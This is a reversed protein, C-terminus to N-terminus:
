PDNRPHANERRRSRCWALLVGGTSVGAFLAHAGSSTGLGSVPPHSSITTSPMAPATTTTDPPANGNVQRAGAGAASLTLTRGLYRSEARLELTFTFAKDFRQRAAEICDTIDITAPLAARDVTPRAGCTGDHNGARWHLSFTIPSGYLEPTGAIEVTNDAAGPWSVAFTGIAQLGVDGLAFPASSLQPSPGLHVRDAGTEELTAVVRCDNGGFGVLDLGEIRLTGTADLATPAIPVTTNGCRVTGTAQVTAGSALNELAQPVRAVVVGANMSAPSPQGEVEDLALADSWTVFEEFEITQPATTRGHGVAMLRATHATGASLTVDVDERRTSPLGRTAVVAGDVEYSLQADVSGLVELPDADFLVTLTAGITGNGRPGLPTVSFHMRRGDPARWGESCTAARTADGALGRASIGYVAFRLSRGVAAGYPIDVTTQTGDVETTPLSPVTGAGCLEVASVVWRAAPTDCAAAGAGCASWALRWAGAGGAADPVATVTVTDPADPGTPPTSIRFPLSPTSQKGIHATVTFEYTSDARLRDFTTEMQGDVQRRAQDVSAAGDLPKVAVTYSAPVCDLTDVTDYRWFLAVARPQPEAGTIVPVHPRQDTESCDLLEDLEPPAAVAAAGPPTSAPTEEPAPPENVPALAGPPASPDLETSVDSKDVRVPPRGSGDTFLVVAYPTDPNNFVVRPGLALVRTSAFSPFGNEVPYLDPGDGGMDLATVSGTRPDVALLPPPAVAATTEVGDLTYVVGRNLAPAVPETDFPAGDLATPGTIHSQAGDFGLSSWRTGHRVLFWATADRGAVSVIRAANRADPPLSYSTQPHSGSVDITRIETADAVVLQERDDTSTVALGSNASVAGHESAALRTPDEPDTGVSVIHAGQDDTVVLWLRDGAIRVASDSDAVTGDLVVTSLRVVGETDATAVTGRDVRVVAIGAASWGVLFASTASAYAQAADIERGFAVGAGTRRVLYNDLGLFNFSGRARSVLLTGNELSVPQVRDGPVGVHQVVDRFRATLAGAALDVVAPEGRWNELVLSGGVVDARTARNPASTVSAVVVTASLTLAALAGALKQFGTVAISGDTGRGFNARVTSPRRRGAGGVTAM